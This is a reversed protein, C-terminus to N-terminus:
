GNILYHYHDMLLIVIILIWRPIINTWVYSLLLSENTPHRFHIDMTLNYQDMHLIIIIIGQYSSLLSLNIPYRHHLHYINIPLIICIIIQLYFSSSVNTPYHDHDMPLIINIFIWQYSSSLLYALSEDIPHHKDSSLIIDIM